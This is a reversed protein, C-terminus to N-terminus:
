RMRSNQTETVETDAAEANGDAFEVEVDSCSTEVRASNKRADDVDAGVVFFEEVVGAVDSELHGSQFTRKM